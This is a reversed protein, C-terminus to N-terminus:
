RRSSPPTRRRADTRAGPRRGLLRRLQVRGPAYGAISRSRGRRVLRAPLLQAVLLPLGIARPTGRRLPLVEAAGVVLLRIKPFLSRSRGGGLGLESGAARRDFRFARGGVM